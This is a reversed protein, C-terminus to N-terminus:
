SKNGLLKGMLLQAWQELLDDKYSGDKDKDFAMNLLSDFGGWEETESPANDIVKKATWLLGVVGDADLWSEQKIKGMNGVVYKSLLGMMDTAQEPQLWTKQSLEDVVQTTDSWFIHGIMKIGDSLDVDNPNQDVEKGHNMLAKDLWLKGENTSSNNFLYTIILPVAFAVGQKAVSSSIGMKTALWEIKNSIVWM